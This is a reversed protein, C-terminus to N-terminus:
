TCVLERQWECPDKSGCGLVCYIEDGLRLNDRIDGRWYNHAIVDDLGHKPEHYQLLRPYTESAGHERLAEFNAAPRQDVKQVAAQSPLREEAKFTPM